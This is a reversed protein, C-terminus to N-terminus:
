HGKVLWGSAALAVVAVEALCLLAYAREGGRLFVPVVALLCLLSCSALWAIGALGAMDGHRVLGLWGWGKPTGTLELFRDVPEGWFRPLQEVPVHGPALASVYAAFALVLAVFGLRTSWDLWQAYRLQEAAQLPGNVPADPATM